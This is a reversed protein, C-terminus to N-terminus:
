ESSPPTRSVRVVVFCFELSQLELDIIKERNLIQVSENQPLKNSIVKYFRRLEANDRSHALVLSGNQRFYIEESLEALIKPWHSFIADNGLHYILQDNKELESFEVVAKHVMAPEAYVGTRKGTAMFELNGVALAM